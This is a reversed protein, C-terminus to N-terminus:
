GCIFLVQLQNICLNFCFFLFIFIYLFYPTCLKCCVLNSQTTLRRKWHRMCIQGTRSGALQNQVPLIKLLFTLPLSLRYRNSVAKCDNGFVDTSAPGFLYKDLYEQEFPAVELTDVLGHKKLAAATLEGLKRWQHQETAGFYRNNKNTNMKERRERRRIYWGGEKGKPISNTLLGNL